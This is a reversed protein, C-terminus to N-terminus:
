RRGGLADCVHVRGTLFLDSLCAPTCGWKHLLRNRSGHLRKRAVQRDAPKRSLCNSNPMKQLKLTFCISELGYKRQHTWSSSSILLEKHILSSPLYSQRQLMLSAAIRSKIGIRERAGNHEAMQECGTPTRSEVHETSRIIGGQVTLHYFAKYNFTGRLDSSIYEQRVSRCFCM